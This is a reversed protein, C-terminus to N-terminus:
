TWGVEDLLNLLPDIDPSVVNPDLGLVSPDEHCARAIALLWWDNIQDRDLEGREMQQVYRRNMSM